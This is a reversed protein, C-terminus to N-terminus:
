WCTVLPAERNRRFTTVFHYRIRHNPLGMTVNESQSERFTWEDLGGRASVVVM